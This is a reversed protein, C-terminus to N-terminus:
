EEDSINVSGVASALAVLDSASMGALKDKMAESLTVDITKTDSRWKDPRRNNLVYEISRQNSPLEKIFEKIVDGNEDIFQEKIKAGRASKYLSGEIDDLLDGFGEELAEKLEPYDAIYGYLTRRSIGFKKAIDTRTLGDRTWERIEPLYKIVMERYNNVGLKRGM